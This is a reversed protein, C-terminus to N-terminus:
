GRTAPSAEVRASGEPRREVTGTPRTRRRAALMLVAAVVLSRVSYIFFGSATESGALLPLLPLLIATGILVAGAWVPRMAALAVVCWLAVAGIGVWWTSSAIAIMTSFAASLTCLVLGIVWLVPHAPPERGARVALILAVASALLGIGVTLYVVLDSPM